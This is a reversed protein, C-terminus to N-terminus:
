MLAIDRIDAVAFFRYRVEPFLFPDSIQFFSLKIGNLLITLTREEEQLTEYSGVRRLGDHLAPMDMRDSRFFDFGESIRHGLHLALGTEGALIWGQLSPHKSKEVEALLERSGRPLAKSHM